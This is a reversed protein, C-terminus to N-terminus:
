VVVAFQQPGRCIRGLRASILSCTLLFKELSTWLFGDIVADPGVSHQLEHLQKLRLQHVARSHGERTRVWVDEDEGCIEAGAM